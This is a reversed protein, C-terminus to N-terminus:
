TAPEPEEVRAALGGPPGPRRPERVGAADGGGDGEDPEPPLAALLGDVSLVLGDLGMVIQDMQQWMPLTAEDISHEVVARELATLYALLRRAVVHTITIPEYDNM